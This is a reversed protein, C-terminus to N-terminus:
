EPTGVSITSRRAALPRLPSHHKQVLALVDEAQRDHPAYALSELQQPRAVVGDKLVRVRYGCGPTLEQANTRRNPRCCSPRLSRGGSAPMVDAAIVTNGQTALAGGTVELERRTRERSRARASRSM